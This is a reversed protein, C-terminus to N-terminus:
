SRGAMHGARGIEDGIVEIMSPSVDRDRAAATLAEILVESWQDPHIEALADKLVDTVNTHRAQQATTSPIALSSAPRTMLM